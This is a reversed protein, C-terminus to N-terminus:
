AEVEELQSKRALRQKATDYRHLLLAVAVVPGAAMGNRTWHEICRLEGRGRPCHGAVAFFGFLLWGTASFAIGFFAWRLSFVGQLPNRLVKEAKRDLRAEAERTLLEIRQLEALALAERAEAQAKYDPDLQRRLAEIEKLHSARRDHPIRDAEYILRDLLLHGHANGSALKVAEVSILERVLELQELGLSFWESQPLREARFMRHLSAELQRPRIVTATLVKTTKTGVELQKARQTWNRTIGIKHWGHTTERILYITGVQSAEQTTTTM